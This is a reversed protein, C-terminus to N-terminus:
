PWGAPFDPFTLMAIVLFASACLLGIALMAIFAAILRWGRNWPGSEGDRWAWWVSLSDHLWRAALAISGALALPMAATALFAALIFLPIADIAVALMALLSAVPAILWIVSSELLFRRVVSRVHADDPPWITRSFTGCEPCVQPQSDHRRYGCAACRGITAKVLPM